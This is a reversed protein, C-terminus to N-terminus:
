DALVGPALEVALSIVVTSSCPALLLAAQFVCFLCLGTWCPILVLHQIQPAETILSVGQCASVFCSAPHKSFLENRKLLGQPCSEGQEVSIEYKNWNNVNRKNTPTYNNQVNISNGWPKTVRVSNNLSSM